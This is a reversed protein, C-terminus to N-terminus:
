LLDYIHMEYSYKIFNGNMQIVLLLQILQLPTDYYLFSGM